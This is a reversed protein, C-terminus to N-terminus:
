LTATNRDKFREERREYHGQRNGESELKLVSGRDKQPNARQKELWQQM